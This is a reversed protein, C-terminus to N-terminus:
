ADEHSRKGPAQRLTQGLARLRKMEKLGPTSEVGSNVDLAWAGLRAAAPATEPAIGGAIICESLDLDALAAPEFPIGSGGLQGNRGTDLLLRDVGFAEKAPLPKRAPVAKWIACNASLKARLDRVYAKGERGHLQVASLRLSEALEAVKRVSQDRFVGVWDLSAAAQVGRATAADICRPSDAAFILGGMVAGAEWASGADEPRTLGCVKFRGYVLERATHAPRGSRNLRSGVLLGDVMPALRQVDAHEAIGSESVVLRDRPIRPALRESVTLDVALTKLNRNNIGIIPAGLALARDLEAEDHVETLADMGLARCREFCVRWGADDLVSLMLLIADAGHARAETVEEPGLIFDKRLVPVSVSEAVRDVHAVDGGFFEPETLVSVADAMGEYQAALAAPDYDAIMTGGSPSAAKCELIFAPRPRGLAEHLGPGGRPSASLTALPSAALRRRKAALIRELAM